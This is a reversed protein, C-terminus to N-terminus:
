FGRRGRFCTPQNANPPPAHRETRSASSRCPWPRTMVGCSCCAILSSCSLLRSSSAYTSASSSRLGSNCRSSRSFSASSGGEALGAGGPVFVEGEVADGLMGRGYFRRAVRRGRRCRRGAIVGGAVGSRRRRRRLETRSTWPRCPRCSRPCRPRAHRRRARASAPRVGPLGATPRPVLGVGVAGDREGQDVRRRPRSGAHRVPRRRRAAPQPRPRTSVTSTASCPKSGVPTKARSTASHRARCSFSFFRKSGAM